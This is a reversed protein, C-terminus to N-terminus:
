RPMARARRASPTSGRCNCCPVNRGCMLMSGTFPVYIGTYMPTDRVQTAKKAEPAAIASVSVSTSRSRVAQRSPQFAALEQRQVMSNAASYSSQEAYAHARVGAGPAVAPVTPAGKATAQRQLVNARM